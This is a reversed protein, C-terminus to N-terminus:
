TYKVCVKKTLWKSEPSTVVLICEQFEEESVAARVSGERETEEGRECWVATPFAFLELHLPAKM